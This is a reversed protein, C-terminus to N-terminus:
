FGRCSQCQHIEIRLKACSSRMSANRLKAGAVDFVIIKVQGGLKINRRFRYFFLAANKFANDLKVPIKMDINMATCVQNFFTNVKVPSFIIFYVVLVFTLAPCFPFLSSPNTDPLVFSYIIPLSLLSASQAVTTEVL